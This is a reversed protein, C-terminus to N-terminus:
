ERVLPVPWMAHAQTVAATCRGHCVRIFSLLSQPGCQYCQMHSVHPWCQRSSSVHARPAPRWGFLFLCDSLVGCTRCMLSGSVGFCPARAWCVHAMSSCSFVDQPAPNQMPRNAQCCASGINPLTCTHEARVSSSSSLLSRSFAVGHFIMDAVAHVRM